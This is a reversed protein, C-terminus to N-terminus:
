NITESVKWAIKDSEGKYDFEYIYYLTGICKWNNKLRARKNSLM